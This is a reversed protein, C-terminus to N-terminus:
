QAAEKTESEEEATDEGLMKAQYDLVAKIATAIGGLLEGAQMLHGYAAGCQAQMGSPMSPSLEALAVRVDALKGSVAAVKKMRTENSMKRSM